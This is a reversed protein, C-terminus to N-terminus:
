ATKTGNGTRFGHQRKYDRKRKRECVTTGKILDSPELGDMSRNFYQREELYLSIFNAVQHNHIRWV